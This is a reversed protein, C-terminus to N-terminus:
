GLYNFTAQAAVAQDLEFKFRYVGPSGSNVIDLTNPWRLAFENYTPNSSSRYESLVVSRTSFRRPPQLGRSAVPADEL